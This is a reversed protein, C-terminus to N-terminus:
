PSLTQNGSAHKELGETSDAHARSQIWLRGTGQRRDERCDNTVIVDKM